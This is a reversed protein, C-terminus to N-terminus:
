IGTPATRIKKVCRQWAEADNQHRFLCWTPKSAREANPWGDQSLWWWGICYPEDSGLCRNLLPREKMNKESLEHPEGTLQAQVFLEADSVCEPDGVFWLEGLQVVESPRSRLLKLSAPLIGWEFEAAGMYDLRFQKDVDPEDCGENRSRIRQVLIM